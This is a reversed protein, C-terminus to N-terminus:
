KGRSLALVETESLARRAVLIDDVTGSLQETPQNNDESKPSTIFRTGPDEGIRLDGVLTVGVESRGAGFHEIITRDSFLHASGQRLRGDGV